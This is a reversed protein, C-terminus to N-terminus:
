LHTAVLHLIYKSSGKYFVCVLFATFLVYVAHPAPLHSELIQLQSNTDEILLLAYKGVLLFFM